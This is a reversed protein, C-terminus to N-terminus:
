DQSCCNDSLKLLNHQIVQLVSYHLQTFLYILSLYTNCYTFICLSYCFVCYLISLVCLCGVNLLINPLYISYNGLYWVSYCLVIFYLDINVLLYRRYHLMNYLLYIFFVCSVSKSFNQGKHRGIKSFCM